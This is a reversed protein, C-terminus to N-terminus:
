ATPADSACIILLLQDLEHGFVLECASHATQATFVFRNFMGFMLKFDLVSSLIDTSCANNHCQAASRRSALRKIRAVASWQRWQKSQQRCPVGGSTVVTSSVTSVASAAIVSTLGTSVCRCSNDPEHPEPAAAAAAQTDPLRHKAWDSVFAACM